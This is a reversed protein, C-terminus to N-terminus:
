WDHQIEYMDKFNDRQKARLALDKDILSIAYEVKGHLMGDEKPKINILVKKVAKLEDTTM